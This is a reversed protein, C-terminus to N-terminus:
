KRRKFAIFEKLVAEFGNKVLVENVIGIIEYSSTNEEEKRINKLTSKIDKVITNLDSETLNIGEADRASNAISTRLKKEDFEEVRGYKKIIKM